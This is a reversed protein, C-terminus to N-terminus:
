DSMSTNLRTGLGERGAKLLQSLPGPSSALKCKHTSNFALYSQVVILRNTVRQSTVYELGTPDM